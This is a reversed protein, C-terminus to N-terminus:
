MKGSEAPKETNELTWATERGAICDRALDALQAKHVIENFSDLRRREAEIRDAERKADAEAEAQKRLHKLYQPIAAILVSAGAFAVAGFAMIGWLLTETLEIM